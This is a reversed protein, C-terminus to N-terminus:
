EHYRGHCWFCASKEVQFRAESGLGEVTSQQNSNAAHKTKFTKDTTTHVRLQECPLRDGKTMDKKKIVATAVAIQSSWIKQRCAWYALQLAAVAIQSSRNKNAAPRTLLGCPLLQLRVIESKKAAPGSLMSSPLLHLRVVESKKAAPGAHPSCSLLQM